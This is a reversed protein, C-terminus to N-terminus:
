PLSLGSVSFELSIVSVASITVSTTESNILVVVQTENQGLLVSGFDISTPFCSMQESDAWVCAPLVASWVVVIAIAFAFPISFLVGNSQPLRM